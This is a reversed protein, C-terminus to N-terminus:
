NQVVEWSLVTRLTDPFHFDYLFQGLVVVSCALPSSIAKQWLLHYPNSKILTKLNPVKDYTRSPCLCWQFSIRSFTIQSTCNYANWINTITNNAPAAKCYTLSINFFFEEMTSPIFHPLLIIKKKKFHKESKSTTQHKKGSDTHHFEKLASSFIKM